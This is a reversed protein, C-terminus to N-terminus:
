EVPKKGQTWRKGGKNKGDKSSKMEQELCSSFALAENKVTVFLMTWMPARVVACFWEYCWKREQNMWRRKHMGVMWSKADTINHVLELM